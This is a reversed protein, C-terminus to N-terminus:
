SYEGRDKIMEDGKLAGYLLPADPNHQLCNKEVLSKSFNAYCYLCNHKCTNYAGIDISKVCGCSLRQNTDKEIFLPKGIIGSILKDDICKGHNIGFASLDVAESCTELSLGYKKAIISLKEAIEFIVSDTMPMIDITATNRETKKYMDVFSIICKKTYRHLKEALYEFRNFHYEKTFKQTLMIPDYRWIVREKGIRQSLEIFTKILVTKEPVNVEITKDYPTLTFQFYYHYNKIKDLNVILNKPNKSWFVICDIVEPNLLIRSVQKNNMPNRVLVFGENIRNYFWDSFFAPVDTRRSVSLIM